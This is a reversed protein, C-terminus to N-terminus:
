VLLAVEARRESGSCRGITSSEALRDALYYLSPTGFTHDNPFQATSFSMLCERRTNTPCDRM